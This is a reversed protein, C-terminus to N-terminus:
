HEEDAQILNGVVYRRQMWQNDGEFWNFLIDNLASKIEDMSAAQRNKGLESSSEAPFIPHDAFGVIDERERAIWEKFKHYDSRIWKNLIDERMYRETMGGFRHGAYAAIRNRKINAAALWTIYTRRMDYVSRGNLQKLAAAFHHNKPIDGEPPRMMLPVIRERTATKKGYIILHPPYGNGEVAEWGDEAYEKYGFGHLCMFWMSERMHRDMPNEEFLRDLEKVHFPNNPAPKRTVKKSFIPVGKLQRYLISQRGGLCSDRLFAVLVQRGNNFSHWGKRNGCIERYTRMATPVDSVLIDTSNMGYLSTERDLSYRFQNSVRVYQARTTDALEAIGLWRELEPFLPKARLDWDEDYVTNDRWSELLQTSTIKRQKLHLIDQVKGKSWLDKVCRKLEEFDEPDYIGTSVKFKGVPHPLQKQLIFSGVKPKTNM